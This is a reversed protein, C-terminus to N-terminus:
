ARWAWRARLGGGGCSGAAPRGARAAGRGAPWLWRLGPGGDQSAAGCRALSSPPRRNRSEGSWRQCCPPRRWRPMALPLPPSSPVAHSPGQRRPAPLGQTARPLAVRPFSGVQSSSRIQPLEHGINTPSMYTQGRATNTNTCARMVDVVLLRRTILSLPKTTRVYTYVTRYSADGDDEPWARFRVWDDAEGRTSEDEVQYVEINSRKQGRGDLPIKRVFFSTPAPSM